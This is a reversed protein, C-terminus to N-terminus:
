VFKREDILWEVEDRIGRYFTNDEVKMDDWEEDSYVLLDVSVPINNTDFDAGRREFREEVRTLIIILDLDSGVSWDGRAYSGFYGLRVVDDREEVLGEAWEKLAQKVEKIGPWKIVPSDLSRVPM